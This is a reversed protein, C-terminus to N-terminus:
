VISAVTSVQLKKLTTEQFTKMKQSLVETGPLTSKDMTCLMYTAIQHLPLANTKTLATARDRARNISPHTVAKPCTLQRVVYGAVWTLEAQGDRRPYTYHTSAITVAV